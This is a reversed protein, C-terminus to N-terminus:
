LRIGEARIAALIMEAAADQDRDVSAGAAAPHGGGGLHACIKSANYGPAARVSLKTGGSAMTRMTVALEVGEINRPFSSIDDVDDSTIGLEREVELPIRCLAVKGGAYFSTHEALYGNLRLRAFRVQEFMVRNITYADAGAELCAAAARLTKATTNGYRFCGTDTSLAVYAAEAMAKDLSVGLAELVDLVIEACAAAQPIVTGCPAFGTNSGHHDLLLAVKDTLNAAADPFMNEAAVDVSVLIQGPLLAPCTLGEVYPAYKPTIEPNELLFAQKGMTRLGRCLAAASGITDGDPRRHTLIVFDDRERLFGAIERCTLKNM